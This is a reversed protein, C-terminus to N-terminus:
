GKEKEVAELFEKVTEIGEDSLEKAGVPGVGKLVTLDSKSSFRKELEIKQKKFNRMGKSVVFVLYVKLGAVWSLGMKAIHEIIGSGKVPHSNSLTMQFLYLTKNRKGYYYGDIAKYNKTAAHIYGNNKPIVLKISGATASSKSKKDLLPRLTYTGSKSLMDKCYEEFMWGLFSGAHSTGKLEKILVKRKEESKDDINAYVKHAVEQSCFVFKAFRPAGGHRTSDPVYFFIKHSIEQSESKIKLYSKVKEFSDIMAQDLELCMRASGGFFDFRRKIEADDLNLQLANNAERLEELSWFQMYLKWVKSNKAVVYKM